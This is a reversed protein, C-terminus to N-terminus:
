VIKELIPKIEKDIEENTMEGIDGKSITPIYIKYTNQCKQKIQEAAKKGADDNDTLIVLNMAGSSDLLIKQRDSMSSGFIGVSNHIDNEELRWVNGPSEVIIATASSMIHEKAFWFNYLHNQSKFDKSHRWKSYIWRQNEEPCSQNPNHYSGCKKCQEFISRGSCGVMYQYDNDYIPVVVRASMEKGSKECLGVDYKTLIESSYQRDIFYQAPINLSKTIVERKILKEISQTEQHIYNVLATFAKKNRDSGSIKISDLDRKVFSTAFEVAERFSCFKDGEKEWKYKRASIIGRIFGIISGKFVKECNHTRCKWNGRYNDGTYYLSIASPNDGGHIPCCMSMMKDNSKYELEFHDLLSEIDDCLDDCLVKLKYQDSFPSQTKMATTM